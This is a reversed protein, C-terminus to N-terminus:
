LALFYSTFCWIVVLLVSMLPVCCSTFALLLFASLLASLLAILAPLYLLLCDRLLASYPLAGLFPLFFLFVILLPVYLSPHAEALLEKKKQRLVCLLCM